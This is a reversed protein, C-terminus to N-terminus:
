NKKEASAAAPAPPQRVVRHSSGPLAIGGRTRQAQTIVIADQGDRLYSAVASIRAGDADVGNLAVSWAGEEITSWWGGASGGTSDFVWSRFQKREADWGVRHTGKMLVQGGRRASFDSLLFNGDESWKWTTEVVTGELEERWHGELWGLAQLRGHPSVVPGELERISAMLWSGDQQRVHMAAYRLQSSADGKKEPRFTSVGEEIVVGDSVPRLSVVEIAVSGPPDVEFNAKYEGEIADRGHFVTGQSDVYEAAPTFLAAIAKADRAQFAKQYRDVAQSVAKQIAEQDPEAASAWCAGLALGGVLAIWRLPFM